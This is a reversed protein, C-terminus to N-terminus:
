ARTWVAGSTYRRLGVTFTAWAALGFGIATAVLWAADVADFSDILRAPVTAVFAAPIVTYLVLKALGAFIDVPYSSLLLLGHFGLDSAESRGVFFAMSGTLVLFSTTLVVAAVVVGAFVATRSVTPHGAVAFLVVGFVIDGLHVPEIRRLLLYALPPVPLALVADLDGDVAMAGLRRANAFVGLAVGGTTTLTAQLLLMLEVDWGRVTGVHHFFLIWFVVWVLDNLAMVAMQSGLAMRNAGAEAFANRLTAGLGRFMTRARTARRTRHGATM